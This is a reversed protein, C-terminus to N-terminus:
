ITITLKVCPSNLSWLHARSIALIVRRPSADCTIHRWWLCFSSRSHPLCGVNRYVAPPMEVEPCFLWLHIDPLASRRVVFVQLSRNYVRERNSVFIALLFQIDTRRPFADFRHHQSACGKIEGSLSHRASLRSHRRGSSPNHEVPGSIRPCNSALSLLRTFPYHYM